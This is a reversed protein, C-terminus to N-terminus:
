LTDSSREAERENTRCNGSESEQEGRNTEIERKGSRNKTCNNHSVTLLVRLRHFLAETSM